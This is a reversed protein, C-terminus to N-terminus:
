GGTLPANLGSAYHILPASVKSQRSTQVRRLHRESQTPPKATPRSQGLETLAHLVLLPQLEFRTTRKALSVDPGGEEGAGVCGGARGGVVRGEERSTEQKM